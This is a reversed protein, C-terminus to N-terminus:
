LGELKLRNAHQRFLAVPDSAFRGTLGFMM